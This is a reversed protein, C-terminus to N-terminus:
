RPLPQTEPKGNGSDLTMQTFIGNVPTTLEVTVPMSEKQGEACSPTCTNRHETGTGRASSDTWSSWTIDSVSHNGDACTIIIASPRTQPQSHCDKVEAPNAPTPTVSSPASNSNSNSSCGAMLAATAVVAAIGLVRM